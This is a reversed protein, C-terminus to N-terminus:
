IECPINKRLIYDRAIGTFITQGNDSEMELRIKTNDNMGAAALIKTIKSPMLKQKNGSITYENDFARGRVYGKKYLHKKLGQAWDFTDDDYQNYLKEDLNILEEEDNVPGYHCPQPMEDYDTHWNNAVAIEYHEFNGADFYVGDPTIWFGAPM